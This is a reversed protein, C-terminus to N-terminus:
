NERLWLVVM